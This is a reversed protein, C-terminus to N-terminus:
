VSAKSKSVIITFQTTTFNYTNVYIIVKTNLATDKSVRTGVKILYMFAFCNNKM